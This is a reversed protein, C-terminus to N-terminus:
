REDEGGPQMVQVWAVQPRPIIAEGDVDQYGDAYLYRAHTLVICDAYTGKLVGRLSSGNVTHVVVTKFTIRELWRM